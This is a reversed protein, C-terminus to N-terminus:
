TAPHAVCMLSNREVRVEGTRGREETRLVNQKEKEGM